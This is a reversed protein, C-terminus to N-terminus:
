FWHFVKTYKFEIFHRGHTLAIARFLPPYGKIIPRFIPIERQNDFCKWGPYENESFLLTDASNCEIEWKEYEDEYDLEQIDQKNDAEIEEGPKGLQHKWYARPYCNRREYLKLYRVSDRFIYNSDMLKDTIVYKINLLDDIEPSNNFYIFNFYSQNVTGGYGFKTQINYIDGLNRLTFAYTNMDFTVRYKGYRTELSDIIKNRAYFRAPYFFSGTSGYNLPNVWLDLLIFGIAMWGVWAGTRVSKLILFFLFTFLYPISVNLGIRSGQFLIWYLCNLVLVSLLVIGGKSSEKFFLEGIRCAYTLALGTLLADAFSILIVYRSLERIGNVIPAAYLFYPFFTLYGLVSVMGVVLIIILLRRFSIHDPLLNLIKSKALFMICLFLPLIGMYVFNFDNLLVSKQGLANQFDEPRLLYRYLYIRLPVKETPGIYTGDQGVERYCSSLYQVSYYIQPLALLLAPVLIMGMRLPVALLFGGWSKRREFEYFTIIIGAILITHFFPQIHGALIQLAAVLGAIILYKKAPRLWYYKFVFLIVWPLLALGYFIHTECGSRAAMIGTFSFVLSAGMAAEVRMQLVIGLKYMGMVCIFYHAAVLLDIYYVDIGKASGFLLCWLINLPYLTGSQLEGPFNKGGFTNADWIPLYGKHLAISLKNLFPYALHLNDGIICFTGQRSIIIPYLLALTVGLLLFPAEFSLDDAKRAKEM